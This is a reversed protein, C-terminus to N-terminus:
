SAGNDLRVGLRARNHFDVLVALNDLGKDVWPNSFGVRPLRIRELLDPTQSTQWVSRCLTKDRHTRATYGDNDGFMGYLQCPRGLAILAAQPKPGRGGDLVLQV